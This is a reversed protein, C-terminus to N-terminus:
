FFKLIMPIGVMDASTSANGRKELEEGTVISSSRSEDSVGNKGSV